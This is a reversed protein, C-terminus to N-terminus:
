YNGFGAIAAPNVEHPAWDDPFGEIPKWNDLEPPIVTVPVGLKQIKDPLQHHHWRAHHEPATSLIIEDYDGSAVLDHITLAADAGCDVATVPKGAARGILRQADDLSWDETHKGSEPPVMLGLDGCEPARRHVEALMAPTSATRNAVILITPATGASM